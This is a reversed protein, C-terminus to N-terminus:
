VTQIMARGSKEDPITQFVLKQFVAQGSKEDLVTQFVIPQPLDPPIPQDCQDGSPSATNQLHAPNLFSPQFRPEPSPM